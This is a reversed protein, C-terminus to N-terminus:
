PGEIFSNKDTFLLRPNLYWAASYSSFLSSLIANLLSSGLM